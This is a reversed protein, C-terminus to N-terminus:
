GAIHYVRRSLQQITEFALTYGPLFCLVPFSQSDSLRDSADIERLVLYEKARQGAGNSRNELFQPQSM